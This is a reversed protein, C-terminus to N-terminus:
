PRDEDRLGHKARLEAFAEDLPLSPEGRAEAEFAERIAAVEEEDIPDIALQHLATVLLDEASAYLGTAMHQDILHQVEPSFGDGTAM